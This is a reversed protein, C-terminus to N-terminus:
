IWGVAVEQSPEVVLVACLPMATAIASPLMRVTFGCILEEVHFLTM